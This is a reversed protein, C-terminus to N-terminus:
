LVSKLLDITKKTRDINDTKNYELSYATITNNKNLAKSNGLTFIKEDNKLYTIEDAYITTDKEIDKVM